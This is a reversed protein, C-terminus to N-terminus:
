LERLVNTVLHKMQASYITTGAAALATCLQKLYPSVDGRERDVALVDAVLKKYLDKAASPNRPLMLTYENPPPTAWTAHLFTEPSFYEVFIERLEQLLRLRTVATAFEQLGQEEAADNKNM